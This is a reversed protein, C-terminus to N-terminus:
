QLNPQERQAHAINNRLLNTKKIAVFKQKHVSVLLAFANVNM